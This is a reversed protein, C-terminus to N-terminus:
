LDERFLMQVEPLTGLNEMIVNELRALMEKDGLSDYFRIFMAFAIVFRITSHYELYKQLLSQNFQLESSLDIIKCHNGHVFESCERYVAETMEILEKSRDTINNQSYIKIFTKSFIGNDPDIIKKWSMDSLNKKWLRYKFDHTSLLISFLFHEFFQRLAAVAETYYGQVCIIISHLQEDLAQKVLINQGILPELETWLKIDDHFCLCQNIDKALEDKFSLEVNSKGQDIVHLIDELTGM